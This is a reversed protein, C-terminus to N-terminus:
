TLLRVDGLVAFVHCFLYPSSGYYFTVSPFPACNEAGEFTLRGDLGCMATASAQARRYWRVGPRNPCLQIIEEGAQAEDACKDVWSSLATGYESNVFVLGRRRGRARGWSQALGDDERTLNRGAFHNAPDDDACPDLAIRGLERVQDLFSSPTRWDQMGSALLVPAATKKSQM